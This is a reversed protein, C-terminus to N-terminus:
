ESDNNQNQLFAILTQENADSGIDEIENAPHEDISWIGTSITYTVKFDSDKGYNAQVYAELDSKQYVITDDNSGEGTGKVNNAYALKAASIINLAENVKAENRSNEITNAIMPIAIAAIIGIIVLVALLEILTMGKQNKLRKLYQKM